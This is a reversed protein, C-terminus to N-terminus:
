MTGIDMAAFFASHVAGTVKGVKKCDGIAVVNEAKDYLSFYLEDKPKMGLAYLIVDGEAVRIEGDKEYQVSHGAIETCRAKTVVDVGLSEIMMQIARKHQGNADMAYDDLLELVTAKKGQNALHLGIECGILGGGIIVYRDGQTLEPRFYVDSAHRANEWGKLFAPTVPESGTAILVTDPRIRDMLQDDFETNLRVDVNLDKMRRVLFDKYDKLDRKL